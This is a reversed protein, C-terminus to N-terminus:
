DKNKTQNHDVITRTLLYLDGFLFKMEKRNVLSLKRSQGAETEM